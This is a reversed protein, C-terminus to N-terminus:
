KEELKRRARIRSRVACRRAEAAVTAPLGRFLAKRLGVTNGYGAHNNFSLVSQLLAAEDVNGALHAPLLEQLRRRYQLGKRPKLRRRWPFLMFGLFGFGENVPRPHAGPHLGLRLGALREEVAEKAEWLRGKDDDFLLMDDVYRAYGPCRLHRKVMHDLPNLYVNAWSQSTPNGIPLGRPRALALLDDGAFLRGPGQADSLYAGSSLIEGILWM